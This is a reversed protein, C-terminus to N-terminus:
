RTFPDARMRELIGEIVHLRTQVILFQQQLLEFKQDTSPAIQARRVRVLLHKPTYFAYRSPRQTHSENCFRSECKSCSHISMACHICKFCSDPSQSGCSFCSSSEAATSSSRMRDEIQVATSQAKPIALALEADLIVADVRLLSHSSEHVFSKRKVGENQCHSCLDINESFDDNMCSLCMFRSGHIERRCSDCKLGLYRTTSGVDSVSGGSTMIGYRIVSSIPLVTQLNLYKPKARQQSIWTLITNNKPDRSPHNYLLSFMGFAFYDLQDKLNAHSQRFIAVLADVREYIVSFLAILTGKMDLFERSDLIHTRAHYMVQVHQKLILYVLPYIFREIRGPGTVLSVTSTGDLEFDISQLKKELKSEEETTYADVYQILKHDGGNVRNTSKTARLLKELDNFVQDSLYDDVRARNKPHVDSALGILQELLGYIQTKYRDISTQWGVAWFAIWIPLTWGSPRASTFDNVEKITIFGTADDDIAELIPQLHTISIYSHTWRDDNEDLGQVPANELSSDQLADLEDNAPSIRTASKEVFYDRLALVFHRAKVSGRWGMEKWIARIDEDQIRGHLSGAGIENLLNSEQQIHAELLQQQRMEMKRDFLDFHKRLTVDLDERLERLLEMKFTELNTSAQRKGGEFGMSDADEAKDLVELLLHENDLLAEAGNEDVIKRLERERPSDLCRFIDRIDTLKTEINQLRQAVGDLKDNAAQVGIATHLSLLFQLEERHQTFLEAHTALREEYVRAKMTRVIANKKSYHECVASTRKIDQEIREMLKSLKSELPVGDSDVVQPDKLDKIQFLATMMHGMRAKIVLVKENNEKRKIHSEMVIKFAVVAAGTFPFVVAIRELGEVLVHVVKIFAEIDHSTVNISLIQATIEQIYGLNDNCFTNISDVSTIAVQLGKGAKHVLISRTLSKRSCDETSRESSIESESDQLRHLHETLYQRVRVMNSTDQSSSSSVEHLM